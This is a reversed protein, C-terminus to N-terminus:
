VYIPEYEVRLENKVKNIGPTFYAIIEAAEKESFTRVSGTLKVYDSEVLITINKDDVEASREFAERIKQLIQTPRGTQKVQITNIVGKVGLLNEVAKKAADKQYFWQVEGSLYVLGDEVKVSINEEPVISNWALTNTVSKAIVADTKIFEKAYEVELDLAIAKVGIVSKIAKEVALKKTYSDVVGNVTVVGNEVIIGIKTEDINPQWM